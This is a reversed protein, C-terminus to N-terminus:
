VTFSPKVVKAIRGPRSTMVVVKTGLWLAEDVDHTIFIVTKHMTKWIGRVWRHMQERIM